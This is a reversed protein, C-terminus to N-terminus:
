RDSGRPPPTIVLCEPSGVPDSKEQKTEPFPYLVGDEPSSSPPSPLPTFPFPTLPPPTSPLLPHHLTPLMREEARVTYKSEAEQHEPYATCSLAPCSLTAGHIHTDGCM